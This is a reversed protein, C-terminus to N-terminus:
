GSRLYGQKRLDSCTIPGIGAHFEGMYKTYKKPLQASYPEGRPRRYENPVFAQQRNGWTQQVYARCDDMNKHVSVGDRRIGWGREFEDWEQVIVQELKVM